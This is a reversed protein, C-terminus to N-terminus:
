TILSGTIGVDFPHHGMDHISSEWALSRTPFAIRPVVLQKVRNMKPGALRLEVIKHVIRSAQHIRGAVFYSGGRIDPYM